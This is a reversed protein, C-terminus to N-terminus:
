LINEVIFAVEIEFADELSLTFKINRNKIDKHKYM